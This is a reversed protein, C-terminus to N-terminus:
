RLGIKFTHFIGRNFQTDVAGNDTECKVL